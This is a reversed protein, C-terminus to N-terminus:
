RRRPRTLLAPHHDRGVAHDGAGVLAAGADQAVRRMRQVADVEDFVPAVRRGQGSAAERELGHEELRRRRESWGVRAHDAAHADDADLHDPDLGVGGIRKAEEDEEVALAIEGGVHQAEEVRQDVLLPGLRAEAELRAARGLEVAPLVDFARGLQQGVRREVVQGLVVLAEPPQHDVQDRQAIGVPPLPQRGIEAHREDLEEGIRTVVEAVELVRPRRRLGIEVGAQVADRGGAVSAEDVVPHM